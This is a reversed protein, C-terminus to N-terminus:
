DTVPLRRGAAEGKAGGRTPGPRVQTSPKAHQKIVAVASANNGGESCPSTAPVVREDEGSPDTPPRRSAKYWVWLAALWAIVASLLEPVRSALRAALSGYFLPLGLLINAATFAWGTMM